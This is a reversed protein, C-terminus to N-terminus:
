TRSPWEKKLLAYQFTNEYKPTGDNNNVFSIFEIFLGEKRMGLKECLRISHSNDEEVYAYIRRANMQNFLFSLYEKAGEFAYGKGGYEPLFNWCVSFTDGEWRGFLTGIFDGSDKLCVVLESGDTLNKKKAVENKVEEVSTLHDPKFCNVQPNHLLKFYSDTDKDSFQRIELRETNFVISDTTIYIM